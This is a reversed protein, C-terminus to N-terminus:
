DQPLFILQEKSYAVGIDSIAYARVYYYEPTLGRIQSTYHGLGAGDKTKYDMVTPNIHTSWCVGRATVESSGESVVTGGCTASHATINTLTDRRVIPFEIQEFEQHCTSNLLYFVLILITNLYYNRNKITRM